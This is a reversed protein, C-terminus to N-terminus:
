VPGVREVAEHRPMEDVFMSRGPNGVLYIKHKVNRTGVTAQAVFGLEMVSSLGPYGVWIGIRQGVAFPRFVKVDTSVGLSPKGLSPHM